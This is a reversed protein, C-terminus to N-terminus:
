PLYMLSRLSCGSRECFSLLRRERRSGECVAVWLLRAFLFCVAANGGAVGLVRVGEEWGGFLKQEGGTWASM